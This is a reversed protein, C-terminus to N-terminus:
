SGGDPRIFFAMGEETLVPIWSFQATYNRRNYLRVTTRMGSEHLLGYNPSLVLENTSLELEVSVVSAMVLIRGSHVNNIRYTISKQFPGKIISEFVLPLYATSMPPVVQSLPSSERLEVCVTDVEILIHTALNNVINLNQTSSSHACVTGYDVTSPGIFIQHLQQPTLTLSCDM